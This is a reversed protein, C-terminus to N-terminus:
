TMFIRTHALSSGVKRQSENSRNQSQRDEPSSTLLARSIHIDPQFTQKKNRM